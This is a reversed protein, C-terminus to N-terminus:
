DGQFRTGFIISANSVMNTQGTLGARITIKRNFFNNAQAPTLGYTEILSRKSVLGSICDRSYQITHTANQGPEISRYDRYTPLLVDFGGNFPLETTPDILAPNNLVPSEIRFKGRVLFRANQRVGTPNNFTYTMIPTAWHCLMSNSSNAPLTIRGLDPYDFSTVVADPNVVLCRDDVGLPFDPDPTCDSTLLVSGTSVVGIWHVVRGFSDADGVSEDTVAAYGLGVVGLSAATALLLTALNRKM